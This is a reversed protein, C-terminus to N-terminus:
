EKVMTGVGVMVRDGGPGKCPVKTPLGQIIRHATLVILPTSNPKTFILQIPGPPSLTALSLLIIMLPVVPKILVRFKMYRISPSSPVYVHLTIISSVLPDADTTSSANKLSDYYYVHMKKVSSVVTGVGLTVTVAGLM